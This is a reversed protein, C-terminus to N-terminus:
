DSDSALWWATCGIDNKASYLTCQRIAGNRTQWAFYGKASVALQDGTNYAAYAASGALVLISITIVSMFVEMGKLKDAVTITAPEDAAKKRTTAM